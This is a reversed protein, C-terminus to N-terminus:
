FETNLPAIYRCNQIESPPSAGDHVLWKITDITTEGYPVPGGGVFTVKSRNSTQFAYEVYYVENAEVTLDLEYLEKFKGIGLIKYTGPKLPIETYGANLLEVAPKGNISVHPWWASGARVSPRYLVLVANESTPFSKRVYTQGTANISCGAVCFLALLLVLLYKSLRM